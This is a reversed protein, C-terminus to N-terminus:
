KKNYTEKIYKKVEAATKYKFDSEEWDSTGDIGTLNKDDYLTINKILKSNDNSKTYAYIQYLKGYTGVGRSNIEWSVIVFINENKLVPFFFVSEIEPNGGEIEYNDIQYIKEFNSDDKYKLIFDISDDDKREFLIKGGCVLSISFPGQEIANNQQSVATTSFFLLGFIFYLFFLRKLM